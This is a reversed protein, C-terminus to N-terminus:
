RGPSFEFRVRFPVAVPQDGHRAPDFRWGAVVSLAATDLRYGQPDVEVVRSSGVTGDAGVVGEVVVNGEIADIRALEPYAPRALEADAPTPPDVDAPTEFDLAVIRARNVQQEATRDAVRRAALQAAADGRFVLLDRADDFIVTLAGGDVDYDRVYTGDAVRWPSEAKVAALDVHQSTLEFDLKLASFTGDYATCIEDAARRDDDPCAREAPAVADIM